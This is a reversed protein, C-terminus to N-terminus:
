RGEGDGNPGNIPLEAIMTLGSGPASRATVSGGHAEIMTRAIYPALGLSGKRRGDRDPREFLRALDGDVVGPGNDRVEIIIQGNKADTRLSMTGRKVRRLGCAILNKIIRELYRPDLSGRPLEALDAELVVGQRRAQAACDELTEDIIPNPDVMARAPAPGGDEIQYLDLVNGVVLDTNWATTGIRALLENREQDDIGEDDLLSVYGSISGVPSRIDHAMMAIQSERFQAADGLDVVQQRLRQRYRDVFLSTCQAVAVAAALGIWRYGNSSSAIPVLSVAAAYCAVSTASMAIQWRPNWDVFAAAALPCLIIAIYRPEPDMTTASVAIFALMLYACFVLTWFRWRRRFGPMWTLGFFLCIGGVLIWHPLAVPHAVVGFRQFDYVWYALLFFIGIAGGLKLVQISEEDGISQAARATSGGLSAEVREVAATRPAPVDPPASRAPTAM